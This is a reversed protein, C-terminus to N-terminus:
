NKRGPGGPNNGTRGPSGPTGPAGPHGGDSPDPKDPSNPDENCDCIKRLCCIENMQRRNEKLTETYYYLPPALDGLGGAVPLARSHAAEGIGKVIEGKAIEGPTLHPPPVPGGPRQEHRQLGMSDVMNIPDNGVYAYLNTDGSRFGIPDESIFRQVLPSYYRARYYYLGSSDNERSTFQFPNSAAAGTVTTMGFPEYIYQTQQVGDADTLGLTSNLAATLFCHMGATDTRTFIEDLGGTVLNAVPGSTGLEQVINQGDYLYDVSSGGINKSIRRGFADYTFSANIDGSISALQDRANWSYTKTGDSTLNGNADYTFSQTGRQTLQNQVNHTSSAFAQPLGTGAFSGGMKARRGAADYQYTIDGLVVAGKEYTIATLQSAADYTYEATVGNPLTLSKRRGAADYEVTITSPGQTIGTLRNANDYAYTITPQGTVTM